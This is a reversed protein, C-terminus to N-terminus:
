FNVKVAVEKGPLSVIDKIVLRDLGSRCGECFKLGLAKGNRRFVDTFLKSQLSGIDSLSVDGPTYITAVPKGSDPDKALVIQATRRIPPM